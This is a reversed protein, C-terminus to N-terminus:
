VAHQTSTNLSRTALLESDSVEITLTTRPQATAKKGATEKLPDCLADWKKRIEESEFIWPSKISVMNLFEPRSLNSEDGFITDAFDEM